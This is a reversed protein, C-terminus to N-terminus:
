GFLSVKILPSDAVLSWLGYIALLYLIFDTVVKRIAGRIAEFIPM